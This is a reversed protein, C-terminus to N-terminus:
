IAVKANHIDLHYIGNTGEPKWIKGLTKKNIDKLYFVHGCQLDFCVKKFSKAEPLHKKVISILDKRTIRKKNLNIM